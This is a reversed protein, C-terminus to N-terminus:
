EVSQVVYVLLEVAELVVEFLVEVDCAVIIECKLTCM